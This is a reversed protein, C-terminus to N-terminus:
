RDACGPSRRCYPTPPCGCRTWSSNAPSPPACPGSTSSRPPPSGPRTPPSSSAASARTPRAWVVAVGAVSGNTIWMKRGTSCGTRATASPTRGCAGGPRLRPRARHSRLLRHGRRLGHAAAVAAEAGRLRLPPHRVHRALGARLRPLPHRLRRGGAGSLRARVPRRQRRRLRLGDLSMGLAGLAGLERALERIGPLEGREYWDAIHPLVRDAAWSGCPPGSRWTRRSWCTTSAWPDAPDFPPLTGASM